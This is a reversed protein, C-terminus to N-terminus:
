EDDLDDDEDDDVIDAVESNIVNEIVPHADEGDPNVLVNALMHQIQVSGEVEVRATPKGIVQDLIYQAAQLKVASPTIPKGNDDMRNDTMLDAFVAIARGAYAGIRDRTMSGLRKRAEQRMVDTVVQGTYGGDPWTGDPKRAQGRQLEEFDWKEVPKGYLIELEDRAENLRTNTNRLRERARRKPKTSKLKEEMTRPSRTMIKEGGRVSGENRIFSQTDGGLWSGGRSVESLGGGIM